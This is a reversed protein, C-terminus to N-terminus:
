LLSFDDAGSSLGFLRSFTTDAVEVRDGISTARTENVVKVMRM